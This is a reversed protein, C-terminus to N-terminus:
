YKYPTDGRSFNRAKAFTLEFKIGRYYGQSIALLTVSLRSLYLWTTCVAYVQIGDSLVRFIARDNASYTLQSLKGSLNSYCNTGGLSSQARKNTLPNVTIEVLLWTKPLLFNPGLYGPFFFIIKTTGYKSWCVIQFESCIGHIELM